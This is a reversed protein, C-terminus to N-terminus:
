INNKIWKSVSKRDLEYPTENAFKNILNITEERTFNKKPVKVEIYECGGRPCPVRNTEKSDLTPKCRPCIYAIDTKKVM